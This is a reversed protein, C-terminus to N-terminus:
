LFRSVVTHKTGRLRINGEAEGSFVDVAEDRSSILVLSVNHLGLKIIIKSEVSQVQCICLFANYQTNSISSM